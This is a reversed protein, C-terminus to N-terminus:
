AANQKDNRRAIRRRTMISGTIMGLGYALVLIAVWGLSKLIQESFYHWVTILCAVIVIAVVVWIIIEKTKSM